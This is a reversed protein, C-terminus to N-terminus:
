CAELAEAEDLRASIATLWDAPRLGFAKAMRYLELSDVRRQGQEIRAVHSPSKGLREALERQSLGAARRAEVIAGVIERYQPSFVSNPQRWSQM